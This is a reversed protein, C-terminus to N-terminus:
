ESDKSMILRPIMSNRNGRPRDRDRTYTNCEPRVYRKVFVNESVRRMHGSWNIQREQIYELMLEIRNRRNYPYTCKKCPGENGGGM